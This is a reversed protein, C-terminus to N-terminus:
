PKQRSDTMATHLNLLNFKLTTKLPLQPIQKIHYDKSVYLIQNLDLMVIVDKSAVHALSYGHHSWIKLHTEM